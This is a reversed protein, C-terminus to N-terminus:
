FYPRASPRAANASARRRFRSRSRATEASLSLASTSSTGSPEGSSRASRTVYVKPSRVLRKGVNAHWPALRRVLVLGDLLDVECPRDSLSALECGRVVGYRASSEWTVRLRLGLDPRTEKGAYHLRLEPYCWARTTRREPPPPTGTAVFAAIDARLTAVAADYLRALQAVIAQPDPM